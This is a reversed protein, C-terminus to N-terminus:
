VIVIYLVMLCKQVWKMGKIQCGLIRSDFKEQQLKYVREFMLMDQNTEQMILDKPEM